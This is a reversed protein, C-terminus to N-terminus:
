PLLERPVNDRLLLVTEKDNNPRPLDVTPSAGVDAMDVSKFHLFEQKNYVNYETKLVHGADQCQLVQMPTLDDVLPSRAKMRATVLSREDRDAKKSPQDCFAEWSLLPFCQAEQFCALCAAAEDSWRCPYEAGVPPACIM